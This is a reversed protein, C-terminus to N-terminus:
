NSYLFIEVSAKGRLEAVYKNVDSNVKNTKLGNKIDEKSENYTIKKADIKDTLKIIHYGYETEVIGSIEGPKLAFAADEFSQPLDGKSFYDLDGGNEKSSIDQSVEKALAAFDEGAKLRRMVQEIQKKADDKKSQDADSDVIIMIHSARVQAPQQFKDPNDNFYKKVEEDSITTNESFKKGIFHQISLWQKIEDRFSSDNYQSQKLAEQFEADNQFQAKQADYTENIEKGEVKIGSKQSEQYLLETAILNDLVKTIVQAIQEETVAGGGMAAIQLEYPAMVRDFQEQSVAVGNVSAVKGKNVTTAGEEAQTIIAVSFMLALSATIALLCNRRINQM